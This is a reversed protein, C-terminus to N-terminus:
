HKIDKAWGEGWTWRRAGSVAYVASAGVVGQGLGLSGSGTICARRLIMPLKRATQAWRM